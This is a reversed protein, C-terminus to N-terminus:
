PTDTAVRDRGAQKAAYLARDAREFLQTASDGDHMAAVGASLTLGCVREGALATEKVRTRLKEAVQVAAECATNKLLIVFEEGGYRAVMDSGRVDAVLIHAIDKLVQDGVLHGHVDNVQKFHDLDFLVISLCQGGRQAAEIARELAKSYYRRNYVGTLGDVEAMAVTRAHLRARDIALAALNGMAHLSRLEDAAVPHQTFLNDAVIAGILRNEVSLPVIAVNSFRMILGGGGGVEQVLRM